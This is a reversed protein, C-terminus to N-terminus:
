SKAGRNRSARKARKQAKTRVCKNHKKTFHKKCKVTKKKVAPKAPPPPALNGPGNFTASAPAGFIEPQPTPSAKCSAETTCPPPSLAPPAICPSEATCEHADYINVSTDLDASSLKAATLFFVDGGSESADLFAAEEGSTGSSILAVCGAGETGSGASVGKAAETIFSHEPKFVESGSTSASSCAHEGTRVGEPEYEYVDEVGNTDDPVLKDASNFFLRGSDSLYRSQYLGDQQAYATWSPVSGSIWTSNPWANNHGGTLGGNLQSYEEGVPRAGTPNCSACALTGTEGALNAPADYLFVEEDRHGSVADTNDYGTLSRLSMFALYRGDPSVRATHLEPIEAWDRNDQESVVAVLRTVGAHVVYLNCLTKPPAPEKIDGCAGRVAGAAAGQVGDALFYVYSGDRSAGLIAGKVRAPEGGAAPTLDRLQCRPGTPEEIIECEYLDFADFQDPEGNHYLGAGSDSTLKHDSSFLVRTGESNMFQFEGDGSECEGAKLCPEEAADLQITKGRAMDRLYLGRGSGENEWVVSAGDSSVATAARTGSGLSAAAPLEKGEDNPPLVSVVTLAERPPKEASWEYLELPVGPQPGGLPVASTIVVHRGDPSAGEPEPGCFLGANGAPPRCVKGEPGVQGFVTGAPVDAHEEIQRECAQGAPPCGTVLPTFVGPETNAAPESGGPKFDSRLFPTQESADESICPQAAGEASRCPLFTGYPKLVARSLDESFFVYQESYGVSKGSEEAQATGIDQSRWGGPGRSALVPTFNANGLPQSETPVSAQYAIANGARSAQTIHGTVLPEIFAGHKDPPTVMEWSRGDVLGSAGGTAETKFVKEAGDRVHGEGKTTNRAAVRFHYTTGSILGEVRLAPISHTEFDGPLLGAPVPASQDFRSEKCTQASTCPGYEFDYETPSGDPNVEATFRASESTVDLVGEGVVTPASPASPPYVDVVGGVSDAVFVTEAGSSVGVGAGGGGPVTLEELVEGSETFRNVAGGVDVYVDEGSLEAALGHSKGEFFVEDLPEGAPGYKSVLGGSDVSHDGNRLQAYFDGAADVVFGPELVPAGGLGYQLTVEKPETFEITEENTEAHPYGIFNSEGSSVWLEGAADVAIGHMEGVGVQAIYEGSASFKDVVADGRDMVYVDGNSPDSEACTPSTTETLPEPKHLACSNDIAIGSTEDDFKVGVVEEFPPFAFSQHARLEASVMTKTAAKSLTLTGTEADVAEITTGPELGQEGGEVASIEEGVIFGTAFVGTVTTEGATLSGSGTTSPGTIEGAFAGAATFYEVRDNHTDIVYVDGSAENVAVGSPESLAHEGHGEIPTAPVHGRAAQAVGPTLCILGTTLLALFTAMRAQVRVNGAESARGRGNATHTAPAGPGNNQKMSRAGTGKGRLFAALVAFNGAPTGPTRQEDHEHRNM